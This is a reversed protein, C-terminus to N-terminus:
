IYIYIYIYTYIRIIYHSPTTIYVYCCRKMVDIHCLVLRITKSYIEIKRRKMDKDRERERYMHM